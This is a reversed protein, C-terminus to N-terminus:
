HLNYQLSVGGLGTSTSGSAINGCNTCTSYYDGVSIQVQFKATGPNKIWQSAGRGVTSFSTPSYQANCNQALFCEMSTM